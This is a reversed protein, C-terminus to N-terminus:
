RKKKAATKLKAKDGKLFYLAYLICVFVLLIVGEILNTSM